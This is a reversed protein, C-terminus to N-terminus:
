PAAPPVPRPLALVAAVLGDVTHPDAEATVGVGHEAATRSTVPGISVVAPPLAGPGFADLFARVTSSSAFTVVDAARVREALEPSPRCPVTRYAEVAEVAWGAAALGERLVPRAGAAQALLLRGPGPGLRELLAEAVAEDPVLDAVVGGAALAAATAPGVAAVRAPGFARADRVEALLREAGNASTLVV